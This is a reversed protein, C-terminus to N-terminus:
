HTGAPRFVLRAAVHLPLVVPLEAILQNLEAGLVSQQIVLDKRKLDCAGGILQRDPAQFLLLEREFVLDGLDFVPEQGVDDGSGCAPMQPM